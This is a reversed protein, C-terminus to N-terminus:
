YKKQKTILYITVIRTYLHKYFFDYSFSTLKM